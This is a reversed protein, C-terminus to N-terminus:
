AKKKRYLKLMEREIEEEQWNGSLVGSYPLGFAFLYLIGLVMIFVPIPLRLWFGVSPLYFSLM